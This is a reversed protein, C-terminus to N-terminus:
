ILFYMSESNSTNPKYVKDMIRFELYSSLVVNRFSARYRDEASPLSVDIRNPGM